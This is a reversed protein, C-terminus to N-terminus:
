DDEDVSKWKDNPDYGQAIGGTSAEAAIVMFDALSVKDCWEQYIDVIGIKDVCSPLGTNDMDEFNMCGDSGGELKKGYWKVYGRKNFKKERRFDM